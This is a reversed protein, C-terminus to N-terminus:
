TVPNGNFRTTETSDTPHKSIYENIYGVIKKKDFPKIMFGDANNQIAKEIEDDTNNATMMIVYAGAAHNKMRRALDHGNSDPLLIDMFVIDPKKALFLSWGEAGTPATHIDYVTCFAEFFMKRLLDNDEVILLSLKKSDITM